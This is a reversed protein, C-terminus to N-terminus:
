RVNKSNRAYSGPAVGVLRKFHRALHSQDAFGTELAVRTIPWGRLLLGNARAVRAQTQYAHPPIGVENKFVRSLHFPSLHALSSLEELSVNEGLNDELYGRVLKVARRERGPPEPPPRMDAHRLLFCALASLLRSDKELRSASGELAAHLKMFRRALDGDLLVPNPFIPPSATERGDTEAAVQGILNPSAYMMRYEARDRRDKPDRASHVEGPHIVSLSGVPVAHSEGRFRYEGPFDLSLCIQYEEHAHKLLEATPGPAYRYSELVVDEGFPWAKVNHRDEWDKLPDGGGLMGAVM